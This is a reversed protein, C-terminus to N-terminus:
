LALVYQSLWLNADTKTRLDEKIVENDSRRVVCFKKHPGLFKVAYQADAGESLGDNEASKVLEYFGLKFLKAWTRGCDLVMLEAYWEGTDVRVRIHDYPHLRAAVNALFAPNMVDEISTGAEATLTWNANVHEDLAFRSPDLSM